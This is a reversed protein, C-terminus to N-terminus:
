QALEPMLYCTLPMKEVGVGMRDFGGFSCGDRRPCEPVPVPVNDPSWRYRGAARGPPLKCLKVRSMTDSSRTVTASRNTCSQEGRQTFPVNDGQLSFGVSEAEQLNAKHLIIRGATDRIQM